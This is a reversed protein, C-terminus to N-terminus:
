ALRAAVIGDHHEFGTNRREICESFEFAVYRAARQHPDVADCAPREVAFVM